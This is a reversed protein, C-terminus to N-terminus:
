VDEVTEVMLACKDAFTLHLNQFFQIEVATVIGASHPHKYEQQPFDAKKVFATAIIQLIHYYIKSNNM